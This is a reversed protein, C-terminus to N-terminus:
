AALHLGAAVARAIMDQVTPWDDIIQEYSLRIVHYGAAMLAADHAIDSTRQSGVHHGGDIQVVLREGILFDVRHGLIWIQPLIRVRLWRLRISFLTELGSGAFPVARELIRRARRPLPLRMLAAREVLGQRLASEWITMAAEHPQCAAVLALVNEVPDVLADPHRPVVADAWHVVIGDPTGGRGHPSVAVHYEPERLVWLGLRRAQTICSLVVGDRAASVLERDAGPLAVWVRRVRVLLGQAVAQAIVYPSFGDHQLTMSRAVGGCKRVADLLDVTAASARSNQATM